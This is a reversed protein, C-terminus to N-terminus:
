DLVLPGMFRGSIVDNAIVLNDATHEVRRGRSAPFRAAIRPMTNVLFSEITPFVPMEPDREPHPLSSEAAM